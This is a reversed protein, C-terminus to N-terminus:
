LFLWEAARVKGPGSPEILGLASVQSLYVGTTSAIRSLGMADAVEDRSIEAGGKDYVVRFADQARGSLLGFAKDRLQDTTPKAPLTAVAKHGEATLRVVGPGPVDVLGIAVLDALYVGCTSARPSFGAAVAVKAREVQALGTAHWWAIADIVRQKPQSIARSAAPAAGNRSSPGAPQPVAARPEETAQAIQPRNEFAPRLLALLAEHDHGVANLMDTVANSFTVRAREVVLRIADADVAKQAALQARAKALEATLARVQDRLAKINEAPAAAEGLARSMAAVFAEVGIAQQVPADGTLARRDPHLSRKRPVTARAARETGATWVWCEGTPLNALSKTIQEAGAVNGVDLWKGLAVLSNRGRQRHLFLNDCLELVAKNVEEARQNILTFGLRSNGGMRALKEVEAYVQGQDPGIRQPAFEAAEEIFVHRLGFSGNEHLLVRLSSAVIRKWDAKSLDIDFLDIVVSVGNAMAARVIEPASAVTLPLDGAAGGAVVVPFGAGDPAQSPVRLFRWVGIPDFAVFPIGADLLQEAFGTATYTKGSDRIGLIANGRSAFEVADIRVDGPAGARGHHTLSVFAETM